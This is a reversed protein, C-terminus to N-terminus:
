APSIMTTSQAKQLKPSKSERLKREDSLLKAFRILADENTGVNEILPGLSTGQNVRAVPKKLLGESIKAQRDMNEETAVDVSSDTGSLTTDQIRLYNSKSRLAQFVECLLFDVMDSSAQTFANVLPSSGGHLLWGLVGWKAAMKATYRKEVKSTGTGISIVLFRGYDIPKVPFFDPNENFVQNTVQSIAVLAQQATRVHATSINGALLQERVYHCDIEIHKTREHFVPNSAIHLAAQNDCFLRMPRDHHVGLSLLFSKLWTLECTTVAM